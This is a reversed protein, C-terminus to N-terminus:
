SLGMMARVAPDAALQAEVVASARYAAVLDEVCALLRDPGADSAALLDLIEEHALQTTM